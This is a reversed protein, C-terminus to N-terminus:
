GDARYSMHAAHADTVGICTRCRARPLCATNRVVLTVAKERCLSPRNRPMCAQLFTGRGEVPSRHLAGSAALSPAPPESLGRLLRPPALACSVIPVPVEAAWFAGVRGAGGKRGGLGM